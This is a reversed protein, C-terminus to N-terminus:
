YDHEVLDSLADSLAALNKKDAQRVGKIKITFHEDCCRCNLEIIGKKYRVAHIEEVFLQTKSMRGGEREAM